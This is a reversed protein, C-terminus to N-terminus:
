APQQSASPLSFVAPNETPLKKWMKDILVLCFAAVYLTYTAMDWNLSALLNFATNAAAHAIGVVLINGKSRNYLWGLIISAPILSFYNNIWYVPTLVDRGEAYWLFAHWPVWFLTVILATVLPSFRAQLRPRVFGSWGAEEGVANYFFLQYFFKVAILGILPLGSASFVLNFRVAKGFLGNLLISLLAAAPVFVLAVLAWRYAGRLSVLTALLSRVSPVRSYAASIVYAVPTVILLMLLLVMIISFPAHNIYINFTSFIATGVVLAILFAIWRTKKLGSKPAQNEITTVLIGALAPGCTAISAFFIFFTRDHKLVAIYSFGLGWTIAFTIVYFAILPHRCIWVKIRNM